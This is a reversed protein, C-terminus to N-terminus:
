KALEMILVQLDQNMLRVSAQVQDLMRARTTLEDSSYTGGEGFFLKRRQETEKADHGLVDFKIWREQMNHSISNIQANSFYKETLLYWVSPPYVISIQDDDWFDTLLNRTHSFYIRRSSFLAGLGLTGGIIGGTIAIAESQSQSGSTSAIGTAAGVVISAVTLTRVRRNERQLIFYAVQKARESECDLEASTSAIETSVLLLRSMIRQKKDLYGNSQATESQLETLLPLIGCANAMMLSRYTYRKLLSSDLLTSIDKVPRSSELYSYKIPPDCYGSDSRLNNLLKISSSCSSIASLAVLLVLIIALSPRWKDVLSNAGM